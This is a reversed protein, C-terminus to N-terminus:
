WWDGAKLFRINALNKAFIPIIKSYIV